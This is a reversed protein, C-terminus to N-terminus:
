KAGHRTRWVRYSYRLFNLVHALPQIHSSEDGYITRIPVWALQMKQRVCLVVMEVEFEFGQQDSALMAEMLRRSILRYGSQNDRIRKGLALSLVLGGLSNALMRPFPMKQFDRFGIILDAQSQSYNELFKPIEIPDHQGDSDLTLVADCGMKLAQRFGNLLAAGKGQNPAQRIVTAGSREALEATNDTSGDDVVWVPLLDRATRIVPEIHGAENHAPLLAVVSSPPSYTM